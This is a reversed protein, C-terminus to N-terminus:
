TLPDVFALCFIMREYHIGGDAGELVAILEGKEGRTWDHFYAEYCLQHGSFYVRRVGKKPDLPFPSPLYPM